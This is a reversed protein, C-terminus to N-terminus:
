VKHIDTATLTAHNDLIALLVRSADSGGNADYYLSGTSSDYAFHQSGSLTATAADTGQYITENLVNGATWSVGGFATGLLDIIDKQGANGSFDAIHDGLESLANFRFHDAGGGGTLTDVGGGGVLTDNGTGGILINAVSSGTISIAATAGSADVNEFNTVTARDTNTTQDSTQSLDVTPLGTSGTIVLTDNDAGGNLV